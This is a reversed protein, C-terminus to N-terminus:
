KKGDKEENNRPPMKWIFIAGEAGVSVINKQDPSIMIQNIYGSHGEGVALCIGEDYNWVKVM